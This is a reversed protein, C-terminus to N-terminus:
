KRNIGQKGMIEEVMDFMKEEGTDKLLKIATRIITGRSVDTAKGGNRQVFETQCKGLLEELADKESLPM